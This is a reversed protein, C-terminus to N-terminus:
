QAGQPMPDAKAFENAKMLKVTGDATAVYGGNRSVAAEFALVRNAVSATDSLDANFIITIDGELAAESALADDEDGDRKQSTLEIANSPSKGAVKAYDQYMRVVAALNSRRRLIIDQAEKDSCGTLALFLMAFPLMAFITSAFRHKSLSRNTPPNMM